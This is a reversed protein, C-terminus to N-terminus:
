KLRKNDVSFTRQGPGQARAAHSGQYVSSVKFGMGDRNVGHLQNMRVIEEVTDRRAGEHANIIRITKAVLRAKAKMRRENRSM